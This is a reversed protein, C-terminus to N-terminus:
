NAQRRLFAPIEIREQDPDTEPEDRFSTVVPQVRAQPQAQGQVPETGHGTMRNILSGIASRPKDAEASPAARPAAVPSRAEHGPVKRAIAANLRAIAQPSPTGPAPARPAVFSEPASEMQPEPRPTYAPPPLAGNDADDAFDDFIDEAQESAANSEEDFLTPETM